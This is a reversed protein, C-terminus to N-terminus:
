PRAGAVGYIDFEKLFHESFVIRKGVGGDLSDMTVLLIEAEAVPTGGERVVGTIMAGEEKEDAVRAEVLFACPPAVPRFFRSQNVKALIVEKKFDFGLGYLVGGAQAIMEIFLVEPVLPRAPLHDKFFDERGSFSKSARALDGRRLVEFRDLLDWRM